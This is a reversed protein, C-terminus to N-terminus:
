RPHFFHEGGIGGRGHAEADAQSGFTIPREGRQFSVNVGILTTEGAPQGSKYVVQHAAQVAHGVQM